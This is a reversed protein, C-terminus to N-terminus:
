GVSAVTMGEEIPDNEGVFIQQVVGDCPSDVPIEMKMSEAILLTDGAQVRAGPAVLVKWVKGTVEATVDM